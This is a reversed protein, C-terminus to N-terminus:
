LASAEAIGYVLATAGLVVSVVLRLRHDRARIAADAGVRAGPIVAVCLIAALRWDVDGLFAHTVTAPVALVGVCALSTAITRKLPLRVLESFGPVLVLGGGVGLLGSLVGAALGVGAATPWGPHRAPHARSDDDPADSPHAVRLASLGLLCATVIMLWHGGGPVVHSGLSGVVAAVAGVPGAVALTRWDVLGERSYRATGAAATLVTPPLTTGVALFASAGLLRVGPTTVIAGGVGFAGALAGSVLGLAFTLGDHLLGAGIQATVVRYGARRRALCRRM